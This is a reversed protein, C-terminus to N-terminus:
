GEDKVVKWYGGKDPGIRKVKGQQKLKSIHKEVARTSIGLKQSLEAITINKNEKMYGLIKESSKESGKESSKESGKEKIEYSNDPVLPIIIKFVDKEILQPTGGKSYIPTYKFINRVGSGLEDARGIERFVRAIKPNKSYPVLSDPTIHGYGHARNANETVVRTKEIILKAPLPSLYERHMLINSIVERFIKDRLSLRHINDELYFPDPLHKKIFQMLIEFADILNTNVIERDDYMDVNEIRLIADTKYYALTSYIIEDKGFLLLAGLTFGKKGTTVDEQYFGLSKLMSFNDMEPLPSNPNLSKIMKKTKEIVTENLEKLTLFPYVKNESFNTQKRMYLMAVADNNNTIDFDGDENRDYIKGNCRHVQSSEPVTVLIITKGEVQIDEVMLSIPPNIKQPNSASTVIEKKIKSIHEPNVGIIKENDKVGLLIYGGIRNLFACITQYIDKTPSTKSEKFEINIGEGTKILKFIDKEIM